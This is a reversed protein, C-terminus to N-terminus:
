ARTVWLSAGWMGGLWSRSGSALSSTIRCHIAPPANFSEPEVAFAFFSGVTSNASAEPAPRGPPVGTM